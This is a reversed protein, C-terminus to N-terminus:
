RSSWLMAEVVAQERGTNCEIASFVHFSFVARWISKKREKYLFRPIANVGDAMGGRACLSQVVDLFNFAILRSRSTCEGIGARTATGEEEESHM